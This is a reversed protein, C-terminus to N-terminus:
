NPTPMRVADVVLVDQPGKVRELKLGLQDQLAQNMAAPLAAREPPRHVSFDWAFSGQLGTRNLVPAQLAVRAVRQVFDDITGHAKHTMVDRMSRLNLERCEDKPSLAADFPKGTGLHAFCNFRSPKLRGRDKVVLAWAPLERTVTHTRLGFREALLTRLMARTDGQGRADIDFRRRLVSTGVTSYDIRPRAEAEPIGYAFSILNFLSERRAYYGSPTIDAGGEVGPGDITTNERISAVEFRQSQASVSSLCAILWALVLISGKM